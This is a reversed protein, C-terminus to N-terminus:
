FNTYSVPVGPWSASKLDSGDVALLRYGRFTKTPHLRATFRHFLSEM